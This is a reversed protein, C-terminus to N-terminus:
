RDTVPLPHSDGALSSRTGGPRTKNIVQFTRPNGQVLPVFIGALTLLSSAPMMIVAAAAALLRSDATRGAVQSSAGIWGCSFFLALWSLIALKSVNYVPSAAPLQGSLKLYLGTLSFVVTTLGFMYKAVVVVAGPLSFVDRHLVGHIDGWLWRRRQTIFDRLNWPSTLEVYEHFWGWRLGARVAKQGFVLDESAFAPWNWTVRGEAQGTVTLGEGHVHLPRGLIGQFVSCYVLCAHTRMDDAHSALFHGVPRVAYETRPVTIGECIDYDATFATEIYRRTPAVDDDNFLVKVDPRDLGQAVRVQRSYELARAKRESRATFAAPVTLVRDAQPYRDDSGPETVVWIELSMTLRYARIQDLVENVRQQERGTTTIQIVLHSFKGEPAVRFRFRYFLQGLILLTLEGLPVLWVVYILYKIGPWGATVRITGGRTHVVHIGIAIGTAVLSLVVALAVLLRHRWRGSARSPAAVAASRAVGAARGPRARAPRLAHRGRPALWHARPPVPIVAPATILPRAAPGLRDPGSAHWPDSM